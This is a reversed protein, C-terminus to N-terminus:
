LNSQAYTKKLNVIVDGPTFGFESIIKSNDIPFPTRKKFDSDFIVSSGFMEVFIESIQRFTVNVGSSVNYIQSKGELAISVLLTLADEFAIFDKETEPHGQIKVTGFRSEMLPVFFQDNLGDVVYSLRAIRSKKVNSNLVISEGLLKTLNYFDSEISPDFPINSGENTSQHNEYLRASSLYLFSDCTISRLIKSLYTVHADVIEYSRNRFNGQTIGACYIVHGISKNQDPIMNRRIVQVDHGAGQLNKFLGQGIYGNGGVLSILAM